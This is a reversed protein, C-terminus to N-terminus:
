RRAKRLIKYYIATDCRSEFYAFLICQKVGFDYSMVSNMRCIEYIYIYIYALM